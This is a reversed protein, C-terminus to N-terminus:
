AAKPRANRKSKGYIGGITNITKDKLHTSDCWKLIGSYSGVTSQDSLTLRKGKNTKRRLRKTAIKLRKKTSTRLLTYKGFYRYGVFDIGRVATPFVQWNGKITLDLNISLYEAIDQRLRHLYEKSDSLIVIDDMYRIYYKVRKQEKLWHDFYSLYFNGFYQSTYSGIPIGKPNGKDYSDVIDDLLWLLDKDKFKRRLLSKLRAKDINPFFKRVDMKLCYRTGETDDSVYKRLKALAAHTGREPLAAYTTPILHKCFIPEIVQLIAWQIIRDPYYPLEAIERRKGNDEIEFIHYESTTYTKDILMQRIKSCYGLVDRDVRRGDKNKTKHKRANLHAQVINNIDVIKEFLNGYRKM